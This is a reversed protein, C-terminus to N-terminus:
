PMTNPLTGLVPRFVRAPSRQEPHRPKVVQDPDEELVRRSSVGAPERTKVETPKQLDM